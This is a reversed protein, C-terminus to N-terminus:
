ECAIMANRKLIPFNVSMESERPVLFQNLKM